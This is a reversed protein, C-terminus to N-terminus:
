NGAHVASRTESQSGAPELYKDFWALLRRLRELRPKPRGNSAMTHSEGQFRLFAAEKGLKKLAIFFQESQEVPCRHDQENATILVPTTVNKVYAIPSHQLLTTPDDWPTGGYEIEGWTAGIDSTGYKSHLNSVCVETVACRFRSTHTILWNTMFGGYSGGTVATRDPDVFGQALVHDLGFLIDHSDKTGWDAVVSRMFAEGYGQSGRPNVYVLVYGRAALVQPYHGFAEGFAGHPGGHIRLIAPYKKAPDFGPPTLIWGEMPWGDAGEYSFRRTQGLELEGLLGDNFGALRRARSSPDLFWLEDLSAPGIRQYVIMGGGAALDAIVEDGDTLQRATKDLVGVSFLHTRGAITSFFIIAGGDATWATSPLLPVFRVDTGVSNGVSHDFDATLNIPMGGMTPVVWIATNRASSEPYDHGVFSIWKGDPSVQPSACPGTRDTLPRLSGTTANVLWLDRAFSFDAQPSRNALVVIERGTPLWTVGEHDFDGTTLRVPTGGAAPVTWLHAYGDLFGIRDFKYKPRRIERVIVEDEDLQREVEELTGRTIFAITRGDPSWAFESVGVRFATLQRGEGGDASMVWLQLPARKWGRRKGSRNSLFAISRGDPSWKPTTDRSDDATIPTPPGGGIPVVWLVGRIENSDYDLHALAFAVKTGDPSVAAHQPFRIRLLDEIVISRKTV